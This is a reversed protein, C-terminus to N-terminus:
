QPYYFHNKEYFYNKEKIITNMYRAFESPDAFERLKKMEEENDLLSTFATYFHLIREDGFNNGIRNFALLFVLDVRDEGVWSIAEKLRAISILPRNVFKTSGHPAAVGNSVETSTVRERALVSDVFEATVVGALEIEACMDRLLEEKDFPRADLWIFKEDFLESHITQMCSVVSHLQQGKQKRLTQMKKRIINLDAASIFNDVVVVEKGGFTQGVPISSIIFDCNSRWAVKEDNISIVGDVVIGIAEKELRIMMLHSVSVGYNCLILVHYNTSIREVAGCIDLALYGLENENVALGTENEMAVSISWAVTLIRPYKTKIQSLLPNEANVGQSLRAIMSRLSLFLNQFLTADTTFDMALVRCFLDIMCGTLTYLKPYQLEFNRRVEANVFDRPTAMALQYQLYLRENLSVSNGYEEEILRALINSMLRDHETDFGYGQLKPATVIKKKSSRYISMSIHFLLQQRSNYSFQIGYEYEFRSLIKVVPSADFGDLFWRIKDCLEHITYFGTREDKQLLTLKELKQFLGWLAIRWGYEEGVISLGKGKSRQVTLEYQSFWNEAEQVAKNTSSRSLYLTNGIQALTMSSKKLLLCAAALGRQSKYDTPVQASEFTEILQDYEESSLMLRIGRNPRAILKSFM